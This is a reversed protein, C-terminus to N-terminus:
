PDTSDTRASQEPPSPAEPTRRSPLAASRHRRVGISLLQSALAYNERGTGANSLHHFRYSLTLETTSSVEVRVGAEATATFNFRTANLTPVPRDAWLVGGTTALTPQIRSDRRFVWTLGIPSVGVGFASGAPFTGDLAFLRCGRVDCVGSPSRMGPQTPLPPSLLAAPVVDITYEMAVGGPTGLPTTWRMAMLALNVHPTGGLFGWDPSHTGRGVWVEFGKHVRSSAWASDHSEAQGHATSSVAVSILMAVCCTVRAARM